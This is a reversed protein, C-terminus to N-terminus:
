ENYIGLLKFRCLLGLIGVSDVFGQVDEFSDLGEEVEDENDDERGLNVDSAL